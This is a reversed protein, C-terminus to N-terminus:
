SSNKVNNVEHIRKGVLIFLIMFFLGLLILNLNLTFVGVWFGGLGLLSGLCSKGDPDM